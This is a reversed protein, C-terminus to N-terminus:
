WYESAFSRVDRAQIRVESPQSSRRHSHDLQHRREGHDARARDEAHQERHGPQQGGGEGVKPPSGVLASHAPLLREGAARDQRFIVEPPEAGTRAPGGRRCSEGGSRFRRGTAVGVRPVRDPGYPTLLEDLAIALFTSSM